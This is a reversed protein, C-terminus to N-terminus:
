GGADAVGLPRLLGEIQCRGRRSSLTLVNRGGPFFEMTARGEDVPRECVAVRGVVAIADGMATFGLQSALPFNGRLFVVEEDEYVRDFTALASPIIAGGMGGKGRKKRWEALSGMGAAPCRLDGRALTGYAGASQFQLRTGPTALEVCTASAPVFTRLSWGDGELLTDLYGFRPKARAVSMEVASGPLGLQFRNKGPNCGALLLPGLALLLLMRHM